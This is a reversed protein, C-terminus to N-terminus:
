EDWHSLDIHIATTKFAFGKSAGHFVPLYACAERWELTEKWDLAKDVSIHRCVNDAPGM